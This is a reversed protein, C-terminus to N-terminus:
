EMVFVQKGHGGSTARGVAELLKAELAKYEATATVSWQNRTCEVEEFQGKKMIGVVGDIM